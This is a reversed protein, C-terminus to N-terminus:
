NISEWTIKPPLRFRTPAEDTEKLSYGGSKKKIYSCDKELGKQCPLSYM